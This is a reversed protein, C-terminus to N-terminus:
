HKPGAELCFYFPKGFLPRSAVSTSPHTCHALGAAELADAFPGAPIIAEGLITDYQPDQSLIPVFQDYQIALEVYRQLQESTLNDNLTCVKEQEAEFAVEVLDHAWWCRGTLPLDLDGLLGNFGDADRSLLIDILKGAAEPTSLRASLKAMAAFRQAVAANLDDRSGIEQAGAGVAIAMLGTVAAVKTMWVLCGRTM